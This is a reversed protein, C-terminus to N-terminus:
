HPVGVYDLVEDSFNRPALPDQAFIQAVDVEPIDTGLTHNIKRIFVNAYLAYGTDTPHLYDLSFFGGFKKLYLDQEGDNDVDLRDLPIEGNAEQMILEFFSEVDVVHVNEFRSALNSFTTNLTEVLESNENGEGSPLAIPDPVNGIFIAVPNDEPDDGAMVSEVDVEEPDIYGNGNLDGFNPFDLREYDVILQYGDELHYWFPNQIREGTTRVIFPISEYGPDTGPLTYFNSTALDLLVLLLLSEVSQPDVKEPNQLAADIAYLDPGIVIQPDNDVVTLIQSPSPTFLAEGLTMFPQTNIHGLASNIIREGLLADIVLATPV